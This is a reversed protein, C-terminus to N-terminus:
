LNKEYHIDRGKRENENKNCNIMQKIKTNTIYDRKKCIDVRRKFIM